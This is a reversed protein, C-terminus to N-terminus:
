HLAGWLCLRLGRLKSMRGWFAASVRVGAGGAATLHWHEFPPLSRAPVSCRWQTAGRGGRRGHLRTDVSGEDDDPAQGDATCLSASELPMRNAKFTQGLLWLRGAEARLGAGARGLGSAESLWKAVGQIWQIWESM